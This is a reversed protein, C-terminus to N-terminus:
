SIRAILTGVPYTEEAAAVIAITGAVPSEVEQVSKDSEIAYIPDGVAVAAGDQVLWETLKGETMGVGFAPICIDTSM